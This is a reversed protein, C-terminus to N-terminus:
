LGYILGPSYLRLMEHMDIDFAYTSGIGTAVGLVLLSAWVAVPDNRLTRLLSMPDCVLAKGGDAM